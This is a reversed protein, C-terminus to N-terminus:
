EEHEKRWADDKERDRRDPPLLEPIGPVTAGIPYWEACDPNPCLMIGTVIEEGDEEWCKLELPYSKCKPCALMDAMKPNM